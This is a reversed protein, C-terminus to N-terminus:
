TWLNPIVDTKQAEGLQITVLFTLMVISIRLGNSQILFAGSIKIICTNSWQLYRYMETFNVDLQTGFGSIKM